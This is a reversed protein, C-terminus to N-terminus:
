ETQSKTDSDSHAAAENRRTEEEFSKFFAAQEELIEVPSAYVKGVQKEFKHGTHLELNDVVTNMDLYWVSICADRQFVNSMDMKTYGHPSEGADLDVVISGASPDAFTDLGEEEGVHELRETPAAVATGSTPESNRMARFTAVSGVCAGGVLSLLIQIKM